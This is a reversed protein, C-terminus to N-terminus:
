ADYDVYVEAINSIPYINQKLRMDMLNINPGKVANLKGFVTTNDRLVIDLKKGVFSSIREKIIGPDSLRLQKTSM